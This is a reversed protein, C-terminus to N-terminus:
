HKIFVNKLSVNINVDLSNSQEYEGNDLFSIDYLFFMSLFALPKLKSEVYDNDKSIM